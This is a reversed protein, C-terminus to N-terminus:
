DHSLGLLACENDDTLAVISDFDLLLNPPGRSLEVRLRLPQQDLVTILDNTAEDSEEAPEPLFGSSHYRRCVQHTFADHSPVAVGRLVRVLSEPAAKGAAADYDWCDFCSTIM